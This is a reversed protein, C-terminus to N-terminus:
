ELMTLLRKKVGSWIFDVEDKKAGYKTTVYYEFITNDNYNISRYPTIIAVEIYEFTFKHRADTVAYELSTMAWPFSIMGDKIIIMKFVDAAIFDIYKLKQRNM